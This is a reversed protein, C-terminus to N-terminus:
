HVILLHVYAPTYGKSRVSQQVFAKRMYIRTGDDNLHVKDTLLSETNKWLGRRKGFSINNREKFM